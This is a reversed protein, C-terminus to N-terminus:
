VDKLFMKILLKIMDKIEKKNEEVEESSISKGYYSIGNRIRRFRNFKESMVDAEKEKLFYVLAEHSYAKYGDITAIAEIISRLTDYYGVMIKRASFDDIKVNDLFKMDYEATKVLSKALQIDVQVKKVDGNEIFEKFNM